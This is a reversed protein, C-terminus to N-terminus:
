VPAGVEDYYDLLRDAVIEWDFLRAREQAAAGLNEALGREELVRCIADALAIADKPPVLLGTNGNEGITSANILTGITPTGSAMAELLTIGFAENVTSPSCFVDARQYYAPLLAPAVHGEFLVDALAMKAAMAQFKPKLGGEGVIVLRASPVAEKVHRYADLLFPLGKRAEIRGVFLITPRGDALHPPFPEPCSFRHVNVGNPIIRYDGPAYPAITKRSVESVAIRGDLQRNWHRILPLGLLYPLHVGRRWSHFTGVKLASSLRLFSPGLFPLFPEHIHVVDFEHCALFDKVQRAVFPNLNVHAEDGPSPLRMTGGVLHIRADRPLAGGGSPGILTTPHGKKRFHEAADLVHSTVGGPSTLDYPSVLLIRVASEPGAGPREM